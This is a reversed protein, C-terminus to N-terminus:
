TLASGGARREAEAEALKKGCNLWRMRTAFLLILTSQSPQM